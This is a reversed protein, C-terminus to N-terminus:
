QLKLEWLHIRAQEPSYPDLIEFRLRQAQVAEPFDFSLEPQAETGQGEFIYQLPEGASPAYVTVTIRANVSGIIM